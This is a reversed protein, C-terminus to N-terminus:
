DKILLYLATAVILGFTGIATIGLAGVVNAIMMEIQAGFM